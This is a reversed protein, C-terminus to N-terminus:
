RRLLMWAGVGLAIPLLWKGVTGAAAQVAEPDASVLVRPQYATMDLPPQGEQARALQVDLLDKQTKYALAQQSLNGITSAFKQWWTQETEDQGLGAVGTPPTGVRQIAKAYLGPHKNRLWNIFQQRSRRTGAATRRPSGWAVTRAIPNFQAARAVRKPDGTISPPRPITASLGRM